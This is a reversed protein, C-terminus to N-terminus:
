KELVVKCCSGRRGEEERSPWLLQVIGQLGANWAPSPRIWTRCTATMRLTSTMQLAVSQASLLPLMLLFLLSTCKIPRPDGVIDVMDGAVPRWPLVNIHITTGLRLNKLGSLASPSGRSLSTSSWRSSSSCKTGTSAYCSSCSLVAPHFRLGTSCASSQTLSRASGGSPLRNTTTM